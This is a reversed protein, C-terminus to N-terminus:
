CFQSVQVVAMPTFIIPIYYIHDLRFLYRKEILKTLNGKPYAVRFFGLLIFFLSVETRRSMSHTIILLNTYFRSSHSKLYDKVTWPTSETIILIKNITEKDIVRDIDYVDNLFILYNYCKDNVVYNNNKITLNIKKQVYSVRPQADFLDNITDIKENLYTEDYLVVLVCGDFYNNIIKETLKSLSKIRKSLTGHKKSPDKIIWQLTVTPILVIILLYIKYNVFM